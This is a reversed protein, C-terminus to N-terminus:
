SLVMLLVMVRIMCDPVAHKKDPVSDVLLSLEFEFDCEVTEWNLRGFNHEYTFHKM